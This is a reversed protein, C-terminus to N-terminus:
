YPWDNFWCIKFEFEDYQLNEVQNVSVGVLLGSTTTNRPHEHHPGTAPAAYHCKQRSKGVDLVGIQFDANTCCPLKPKGTHEWSQGMCPDFEGM